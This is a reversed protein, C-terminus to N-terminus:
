PPPVKLCPVEVLPKIQSDGKNHVLEGLEKTAKTLVYRLNLVNEQVHDCRGDCKSSDDGQLPNNHIIRLGLSKTKGM